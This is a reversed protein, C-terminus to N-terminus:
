NKMSLPLYITNTDDWFKNGTLTKTAYPAAYEIWNAERVVGGVSSVGASFYSLPDSEVIHYFDCLGNLRHTSLGYWGSVDTVTGSLASGLDPYPNNSYYLNVTVSDLPTSEDGATGAFVRGSLVPARDWFKNGTLTRGTLPAAYEIWNETRVVGEVTSGGVSVYDNLDSTRISYYDFLGDTEYV